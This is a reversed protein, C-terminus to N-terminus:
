FYVVVKSKLYRVMCNLLRAEAAEEQAASRLKELIKSGGSQLMDQKDSMGLHKPRLTREEMEIFSCRCEGRARREKVEGPDQGGWEAVHGAKDSM